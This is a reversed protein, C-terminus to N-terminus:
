VRENSYFPLEWLDFIHNVRVSPDLYTDYYEMANKAIFALFEEEDKVELFRQIYLDAYEQKGSREGDFPHNDIRPISIYHVNPILPPTLNSMYEFKMMPVGMAMYEIDRHCIEGVGPICLGVKYEIVKNLYEEMSYTETGSYYESQELYPVVCRPLSGVNGKFVFQDHLIKEKRKERFAKFDIFPVQPTYVGGLVKCKITNLLTEDWINYPSKGQPVLFVDCETRPTLNNRVGSAFFGSLESCNDAVSIGKYTGNYEVLLECDLIGLNPHDAVSYTDGAHVVM